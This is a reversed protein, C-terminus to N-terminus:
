KQQVGGSQFCLPGLRFATFIVTTQISFQSFFLMLVCVQAQSEGLSLLPFGLAYTSRTLGFSGAFLTLTFPCFFWSLFSKLHWYHFSIISLTVQFSHNTRTATPIDSTLHTALPIHQKWCCILLYTSLYLFPFYQQLYAVYASNIQQHQKTHNKKIQHKEFSLFYISTAFSVICLCILPLAEEM